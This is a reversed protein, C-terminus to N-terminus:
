HVLTWYVKLNQSQLCNLEALLIFFQFAIIQWFRESNKLLQHKNNIIRLATMKQMSHLSYICVKPLLHVSFIVFSFFFFFFSHANFSTQIPFLWEVTLMICLSHFKWKLIHISLRRAIAMEKICQMDDTHQSWDTSPYSLCHCVVFVFSLAVFQIGYVFQAPTQTNIRCCLCVWKCIVNESGNTWYVNIHIHIHPLHNCVPEPSLNFFHSFFIFYNNVSTPTQKPFTNSRIHASVASAFLVFRNSGVVM